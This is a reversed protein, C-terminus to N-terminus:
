SFLLHLSFCLFQSFLFHWFFPVATQFTGLWCDGAGVLLGVDEGVVSAGELAGVDSGVGLGVFFLETGAVGAGVAAGVAVEVVTSLSGV